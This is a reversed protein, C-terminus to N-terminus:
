EINFKHLLLEIEYSASIESNNTILTLIKNSWTSPDVQMQEDTLYKKVAQIEGAKYAKLIDKVRPQKM